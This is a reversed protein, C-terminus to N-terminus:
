GVLRWGRWWRGRRGQEHTLLKTSAEVQGLLRDRETRLDEVQERHLRVIEKLGTLEAEMRANAVALDHEAHLTEPPTESQKMDGTEPANLSVPAYVRHLEAPQIEYSGNDKRVASIVGSKIARHITAKSLGVAKAATGLTYTM